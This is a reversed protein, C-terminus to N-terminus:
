SGVRVGSVAPSSIPIDGGGEWYVWAEVTLENSGDLGEIHSVVVYTDNGAFRLATGFKGRVWAAGHVEGHNENGSSDIAEEGAGENFRWHGLLGKDPGITSSQEGFAGGFWCTGAVYVLLAINRKM